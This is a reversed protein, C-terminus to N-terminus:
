IVTAVGGTCTTKIAIKSLIVHSRKSATCALNLESNFNGSTTCCFILHLQVLAKVRNLAFTPLSSVM